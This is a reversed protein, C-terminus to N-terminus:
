IHEVGKLLQQWDNGFLEELSESLEQQIAKEKYTQAVKTLITAIMLGNYQKRQNSPLYEVSALGLLGKEWTKDINGQQYFLHNQLRFGEITIALNQYKIAENTLKDYVLIAEKVDQQNLLAAAKFMMASAWLSFVSENGDQLPKQCQLATQDAYLIAKDLNKLIYYANALILSSSIIVNTDGLLHATQLLKPAYKEVFEENKESAKLLIDDVLLEYKVDPKNPNGKPKSAERIAEILEFKSEILNIKSYHKAIVEKFLSDYHNDIAIFKIKEPITHKLLRHFFASYEDKDEIFHPSFYILLYSKELFKMSDYFCGLEKLLFSLDKNHEMNPPTYDKMLGMEKLKDAIQQMPSAKDFWYEFECSIANIYQETNEFASKFHVVFDDLIGDPERELEIVLDTLAMEEQESLYIALQWNSAEKMAKQLARRAIHGQEILKGEAM